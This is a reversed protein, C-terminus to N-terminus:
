YQTRKRTIEDLDGVSNGIAEIINQAWKPRQTPAHTPYPDPDVQPENEVDLDQDYQGEEESELDLINTYFDNDVFPNSQTIIGEEVLKPDHVRYEEFQINREIFCKKTAIDM